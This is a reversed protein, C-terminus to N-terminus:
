SGAGRRAPGRRPWNMLSGLLDNLLEPLNGALERISLGVLVDRPIDRYIDIRAREMDASAQEVLRIQTASGEAAIQQAAAKGRARNRANEDEQEILEQERRALEVKNQLENEAIAREKEVALARREFVAEDAKQQLAEFTPTQLARNLETSPTIDALRVTVVELGMAQIREAEALGATVCAKLPALGAELLARVPQEALYQSAAQRALGVVITTIQEVPERLYGGTELDVTFDIRDALLEPDAVRWTIEGQVAVDQFDQSRGNFLFPMDRDDMPIEFISAGDPRFWFALGRGAKMLRGNRFRRVHVNAESRFHCLLGYRHIEAM